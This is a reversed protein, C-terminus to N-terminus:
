DSFDGGSGSDSGGGSDSFGGGGGDSDSWNNDYDSSSSSKPAEASVVDQSISNLTDYFAMDQLMRYYEDDDMGATALADPYQVALAKAVKKGKGMAVAYAMYERWVPFEPLEKKDFTTFDDLFRGFAEWLALDDEGQQNLIYRKKQWLKKGLHYVIMFIMTIVFAMVGVTLSADFEVGDYLTSFMRILTAFIGVIIPALWFFKSKLLSRNKQAEVKVQSSFENKVATEFSRRFHYATEQNAKVYSKLEKVGIRAKGDAAGQLFNWITEEISSLFSAQGLRENLIIKTDDTGSQFRILNKLNMELLTASIEQSTCSKGKYFQLLWNVTSAPRKDPLSRYYQPSQAPTHRLKNIRKKGGGLFAPIAFLLFSIFGVFGGLQDEINYYFFDYIGQCFDEIASQVPHEEKWTEYAEWYADWEAERQAEEERKANANDALEKEEKLISPLAEGEQKWGGTFFDSPITTRLDVIEGVLVYNVQLYASTDDQKEFTGDLPGHAWIRFDEEPIGYPVTLTATLSGITSVGSEGTLNWFFEGVDSYLKVANEVRYSIEFIRTTNSSRHYIFVTNQGDGDEVAFTNEPREENDPTDLMELYEGDMSVQWDCFERPGTFSNKVGYRTFEYDGEFLVERTEVIEASGDEQLTIDFHLSNLKTTHDDASATLSFVSIMMVVMLLSLINRVFRSM